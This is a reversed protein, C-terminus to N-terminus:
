FKHLMLRYFAMLSDCTWDPIPADSEWESSTNNIFVTTMKLRHGMEIDSSFDGVMLANTFDIEPYDRKAQLAMGPNPKRCNPNYLRHTPCFYIHDIRGGISCIHHQLCYHLHEVEFVTTVGKDIGQQNTVVIIRKFIDALGVLAQDADDIFHFDEWRSLYGDIKRVNIVGDRDLFLTTNPDIAIQNKKM